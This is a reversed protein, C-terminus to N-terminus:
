WRNPRSSNLGTARSAMAVENQKMSTAESGSWSWRPWGSRPQYTITVGCKVEAM